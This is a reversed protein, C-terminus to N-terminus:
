ARVPVKKSEDHSFYDREFHQQLETRKRFEEDSIECERVKNRLKVPYHSLRRASETKKISVCGRM